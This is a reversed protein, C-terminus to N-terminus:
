LHARQRSNLAFTNSFLVGQSVKVSITDIGVRLGVTYVSRGRRYFSRDWFGQALYRFGREFPTWLVLMWMGYVGEAEGPVGLKQGRAM